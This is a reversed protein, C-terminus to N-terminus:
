IAERKSEGLSFIHESKKKREDNTTTSFNDSPRRVSNGGKGMDATMSYRASSIASAPYRPRKKGVSPTELNPFGVVTGCM